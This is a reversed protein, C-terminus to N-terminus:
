GSGATPMGRNETRVHACRVPAEKQQQGCTEADRQQGNECEVQHQEVIRQAAVALRQEGALPLLAGPADGIGRCQAVSVQEFRQPQVVAQRFDIGHHEARRRCHTDGPLRERIRQADVVIRLAALRETCGDGFRLIQLLMCRLHFPQDDRQVPRQTENVRRIRYWGGINGGRRRQLLCLRWRAANRQQVPHAVREGIRADGAQEGYEFGGQAGFVLRSRQAAVERLVAAVIVQARIARRGLVEVGDM